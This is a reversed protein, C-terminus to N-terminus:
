EYRLTKVPNTTAAKITQYSVTFLAIILALGGALAFMWWSIDIRYAFDQLWKKAFYYAIPSAIISSLIVLILIEKIVLSVIKYVSAGLIKRIGIEKIRQQTSFLVVGFLGMAGILIALGTFLDIAKSFRLEKSYMDNIKDDLFTFDIPYPSVKSWATKISAIVSTLKLPNYKVVLYLDYNGLMMAVPRIKDHLSNLNFDKAVGIIEKKMVRQALITKGVPSKLGLIKEATENILVKHKYNDNTPFKGMILKMKILRPYDYGILPFGFAYSHNPDSLNSVQFRNGRAYPFVSITYAMDIIGPYSSLTNKFVETKGSIKSCNITLFNNTDFGMDKKHTLRLQSKIVIAFVILSIFVIMQLAILVRKLNVNKQSANARKRLIDAPNTRSFSVANYLGSLFGFLISVLLFELGFYFNTYFGASITENIIKEFYAFILEIFILGLPFALLTTLTSEVILLFAIDKKQAGIVKRVGMETNRVSSKATTLIVFNICALLLILVAIGSYIIINELDIFPLDTYRTKIYYTESLPIIHFNINYVKRDVGTMKSDSLSKLEKELLKINVNKNLLLYTMVNTIMGWNDPEIITKLELGLKLPMIIDPDVTSPLKEKKFIGAVQVLAINTDQEVKLFEGVANKKGFCKLAADESLIISHPDSLATQSIGYELPISFVKLISTDAFYTKEFNFEKEKNIVKITKWSTLRTYAEIGPINAKATEALPLCTTPPRWNNEKWDSDVRYIRDYNKLHKDYSLEHTIYIIICFSVALGAALGVINIFSFAKNKYINRFAIKLYNKLM